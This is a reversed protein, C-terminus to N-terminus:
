NNWFLCAIMINKPTREKLKKQRNSELQSAHHGAEHSSHHIIIATTPHMAAPHSLIILSPNTFLRALRLDVSWGIVDGGAGGV